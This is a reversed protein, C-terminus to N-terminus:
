ASKCPTCVEGGKLRQRKPAPEDNGSPSSLSVEVQSIEPSSTLMAQLIQAAVQIGTEGDLEPVLDISPLKVADKQRAQELEFDLLEDEYIKKVAVVAGAASEKVQVSCVCAGM